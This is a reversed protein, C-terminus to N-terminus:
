HRNKQLEKEKKRSSYSITIRRIELLLTDLFIQPNINLKLDQLSEPTQDTMFDQLDQSSAKQFFEPNDNVTAYQCTVRKFAEKVLAVYDGDKLLSANFKWFGKGRTFRSFDIEISILSHDSFAGPLIEASQIYPVLSASM